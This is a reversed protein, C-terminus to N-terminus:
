ANQWVGMEQNHIPLLIHKVLQDKSITVYVYNQDITAKAEVGAVQKELSDMLTPLKSYQKSSMAEAVTFLQEQWLSDLESKEQGALTITVLNSKYSHKAMILEIEHVAEELNTHPLPAIEITVHQEAEVIPLTVESYQAQKLQKELPKQQAVYQYTFGGTVAVIITVICAIIM